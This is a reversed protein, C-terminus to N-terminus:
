KRPMPLPMAENEDTDDSRLEQRGQQNGQGLDPFL